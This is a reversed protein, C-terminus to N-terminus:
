RAYKKRPGRGQKLGPCVHSLRNRVHDRPVQPYDARVIDACKNQSPVYGKRDIIKRIVDDLEDDTLRVGKGTASPWLKLVEAGSEACVDIWLVAPAGIPQVRIITVKTDNFELVRKGECGNTSDFDALPNDAVEAFDGPSIAELFQSGLRRGKVKLNALSVAGILDKLARDWAHVIAGDVPLPAEWNGWWARVHEYGIDEPPPRGIAEELTIDKFKLAAQGLDGAIHEVVEFLPVDRQSTKIDSM